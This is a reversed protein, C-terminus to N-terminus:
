NFSRSDTTSVKKSIDRKCATSCGCNGCSRRDALVDEDSIYESFTNRWLTQVLVWALALGVIIGTGTVLSELM